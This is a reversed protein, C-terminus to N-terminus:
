AALFLSAQDHQRVTEEGRKPKSKLRPAAPHDLEPRSGPTPHRMTEWCDRLSPM